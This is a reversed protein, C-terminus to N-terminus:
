ATREPLLVVVLLTALSAMLLERHVSGFSYAM